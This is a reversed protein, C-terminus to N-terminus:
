NKSTMRWMFTSNPTILVNIKTNITVYKLSFVLWELATSQIIIFNTTTIAIERHKFKWSNICNTKSHLSFHKIYCREWISHNYITPSLHILYSYFTIISCQHSLPLSPTRKQPFTNHTVQENNPNRHSFQYRTFLSCLQSVTATHRWMVCHQKPQWCRDTGLTYAVIFSPQHKHNSFGSAM